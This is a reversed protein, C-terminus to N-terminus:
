SLSSISVRTMLKPDYLTLTHQGAPLFLRTGLTVRAMEGGPSRVFGAARRDSFGFRAIGASPVYFTANHAPGEYITEPMRQGSGRREM